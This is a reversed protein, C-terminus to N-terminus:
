LLIICYQKDALLTVASRASMLQRRAAEVSHAPWAEESLLSVTTIPCQPACIKRDEANLGQCTVPYYDHCHSFQEGWLRQDERALNLMELIHVNNKTTFTQLTKVGFATYVNAIDHTKRGNTIDRPFGLIVNPDNAHFETALQVGMVGVSDLNLGYIIRAGTSEPPAKGGMEQVLFYIKDESNANQVQLSASLADFSSEFLKVQSHSKVLLGMLISYNFTVTPDNTNNERIHNIATIIGGLFQEHQLRLTNTILSVTWMGTYGITFNFLPKFGMVQDMSPYNRFLNSLPTARRYSTLLNVNGTLMSLPGVAWFGDIDNTANFGDTNNTANAMTVQTITAIFSLEKVVAKKFPNEAETILRIISKVHSNMTETENNTSEHHLHLEDDTPSTTDTLERFM